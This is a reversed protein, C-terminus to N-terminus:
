HESSQHIRVETATSYGRALRNPSLKSGGHAKRASLNEQVRDRTQKAVNRHLFVAQLPFINIYLFFRSISTLFAIKSSKKVIKQCNKSLKKQCPGSGSFFITAKSIVTTTDAKFHCFSINPLFSDLSTQQAIDVASAGAERLHGRREIKWTNKEM